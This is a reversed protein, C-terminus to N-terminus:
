AVSIIIRKTPIAPRPQQEAPVTSAAFGSRIRSKLPKMPPLRMTPAVAKSGAHRGAARAGAPHPGPSIASKESTDEMDAAARMLDLAADRKGGAFAIGAAAGLRQVEVETAWYDSNAAKLAAAIAALRAVDKEAAAPNGSRAAGVARAFLTM